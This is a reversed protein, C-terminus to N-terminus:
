HARALPHCRSAPTRVKADKIAGFLAVVRSIRAALVKPSPIRRRCRRVFYLFDDRLRREVADADISERLRQKERELDEPNLMFIADRLAAM